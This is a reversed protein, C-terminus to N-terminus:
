PIYGGVLWVTEGGQGAQLTEGQNVFLQVAQLPWGEQPQGDSHAGCLYKGADGTQLGTIQVSFHGDTTDKTSLLIRGEFAPDRKGLTNIIVDCSKEKNVRCLFKQLHAVEPGLACDFTVSGRLQGYVLEPKPELVQLDVNTKDSSPGEGAQCVYMGADSPRLQNIVIGFVLQGTGQVVLRVRGIFSPHVNNNSDIVLVCSEDTKKCLSKKTIANQSKFPCNITVTSGIDETYVDTNNLLRPDAPHSSM